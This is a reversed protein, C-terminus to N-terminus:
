LIKRIFGNATAFIDQSSEISELTYVNNSHKIVAFLTDYGTSQNMLTGICQATGDALRIPYLHFAFGNTTRYSTAALLKGNNLRFVIYPLKGKMSVMQAIGSEFYTLCHENVPLTRVRMVNFDYDMAYVTKYDSGVLYATEEIFIAPIDSFPTRNRLGASIQTATLPVEDGGSSITALGDICQLYIMNRGSLVEKLPYKADRIVVDIPSEATLPSTQTFSFAQDNKPNPKSLVFRREEAGFGGLGLRSQYFCGFRPNGYETDLGTTVLESLEGRFEQPKHDKHFFIMRKNENTHHLETIEQMTYPTDLTLSEDVQRVKYRIGGIAFLDPSYASDAINQDLGTVRVRLYQYLAPDSFYIFTKNLQGFETSGQTKDQNIKQWTIGDLSGEVVFSVTNYFYQTIYGGQNLKGPAPNVVTKTYHRKNTIELESLTIKTPFKLVVSYKHLTNKNIQRASNIIEYANYGGITESQSCVFGEQENSEFLPQIVAAEAGITAFELGSNTYQLMRFKAKGDEGGNFVLLYNQDQDYVYPIFYTDNNVGMQYKFSARQSLGGRKTGVFNYMETAVGAFEKQDINTIIEKDYAGRYFGNLIPM